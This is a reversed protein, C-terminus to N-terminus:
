QYSLIKAWERELKKAEIEWSLQKAKEFRSAKNNRIETLRDFAKKLAESFKRTDQEVVEGSFSYETIFDVQAPTDTALVYLGAQAYAILKNTLALQRNLNASSLDLALGVDYMCITKHLAPQDVPELVKIGARKLKATESFSADAIGILTLECFASLHDWSDLVLELGRGGSINQSFWVLQMKTKKQDPVIQFEFSNFSNNITFIAPLNNISRQVEKTILPAACSIYKAKPLIQAMLFERRAKEDPEAGPSIEGPHYDEVDFAFGCNFKMSAFYAPYLAPLNHGIVLDIKKGKLKRVAGLLALSRKSHAATALLLNGKLSPWTIRAIREIVSYYLWTFLSSRTADLYIARLNKFTGVLKADNEDSWMGLRFGVVTIEHGLEEALRLEKYLRPNVSLNSSTLFLLSKKVLHKVM